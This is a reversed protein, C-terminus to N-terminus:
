TSLPMYAASISLPLTSSNIHVLNATFTHWLSSHSVARMLDDGLSARGSRQSRRSGKFPDLGHSKCRRRSWM